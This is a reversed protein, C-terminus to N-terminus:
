TSEREELDAIERQVAPHSCVIELLDLETNSPDESVDILERLSLWLDICCMDVIEKSIAISYPTPSTFGRQKQM